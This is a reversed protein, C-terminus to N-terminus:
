QRIVNEGWWMTKRSANSYITAVAWEQGKECMRKRNVRAGALARGKEIGGFVANQDFIDPSPM